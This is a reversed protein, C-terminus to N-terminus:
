ACKKVSFHNEVLNVTLLRSAVSDHKYMYKENRDLVDVYSENAQVSLWCKSVDILVVYLDAAM